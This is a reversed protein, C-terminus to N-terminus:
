VLFKIEEMLSDTEPSEDICVSIGEAHILPASIFEVASHWEFCVVHLRKEQESHHTVSRANGSDNTESTIFGLSLRFGDAGCYWILFRSIVVDTQELYCVIWNPAHM